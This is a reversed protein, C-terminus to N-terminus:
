DSSDKVLSFICVAFVSMERNNSWHEFYEYGRLLLFATNCYLSGSLMCKRNVVKGTGLILLNEINVKAFSFSMNLSVVSPLLQLGRM